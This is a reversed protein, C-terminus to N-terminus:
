KKAVEFTVRRQQPNGAAEADTMEKDGASKAGMLSTNVGVARLENVVQRARQRGMQMNAGKSGYKCAHGVAYVKYGKKNLELFTPDELIANIAMSTVKVKKLDAIKDGFTYPGIVIASLYSDTLAKAIEADPTEATVELPTPVSAGCSALVVSMLVISAMLFIKKM